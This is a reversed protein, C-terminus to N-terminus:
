FGPRCLKENVKQVNQVVPAFVKFSFSCIAWLKSAFFNMDQLVSIVWWARTSSFVVWLETETEQKDILSLQQEM